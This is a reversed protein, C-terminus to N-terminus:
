LENVASPRCGGQGHGFGAAKRSSIFTTFKDVGKIIYILKNFSINLLLLYYSM